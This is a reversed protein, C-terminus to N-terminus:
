TKNTKKDILNTTINTTNPSCFYVIIGIIAMTTSILIPHIYNSAPIPSFICFIFSGAISSVLSSLVYLLLINSKRFFLIGIIIFLIFNLVVFYITNFCPSILRLFDYIKTKNLSSKYFLEEELFITKLWRIDNVYVSYHQHNPTISTINDSRWMTSIYRRVHVFYARPYKIIAKLWAIKLGKLKGTKFPRSAIWQASMNDANLKNNEYTKVVDSYNKGYLYWERKFCTDDNNPVCAGAIQHLLIHNEPYSTGKKLLSSLGLASFITFLAFFILLGIYKAWIHSQKMQKIILYSYIFFIPYVQILANHRSLITFIFAIILCIMNKNTIGVLIQYLVLSWLLFVFMSSSISSHLMINNFFVNGLFIPLLFLFCWKSHFRKWGGLCLAFLGLYFPILNFFLPMYLHRGFIDSLWKLLVVYMIPYHNDMGWYAMLIIWDTMIYGPYFLWFNVAFLGICIFAIIYPIASDKFLISKLKQFNLLALM